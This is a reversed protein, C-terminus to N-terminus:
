LSGGGGRRSWIIASAIGVAMVLVIVPLYHMFADQIPMDAKTDSFEDASTIENYLNSYIVALTLVVGLIIVGVFIMVPHQMIGGAMILVFAFLGIILFPLLSDFLLGASTTQNFAKTINMTNAADAPLASQLGEELPPRIDAWVKNLIIFVLAFALLIVIIFFWAEFGQAKKVHSIHRIEM